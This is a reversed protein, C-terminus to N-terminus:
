PAGGAEALDAEGEGTLAYIGDAGLEVWGAERFERMRVDVRRDHTVRQRWLDISAASRYVQGRDIAGLLTRRDRNLFPKV